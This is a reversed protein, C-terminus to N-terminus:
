SGRTPGCGDAAANRLGFCLAGVVPRADPDAADLLRTLTDPEFGMDADVWWLWETETKDLFHATVRNRAESPDGSPCAQSILQFPIERTGAAEHAFAGVLSM